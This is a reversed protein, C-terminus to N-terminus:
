GQHAIALMVGPGEFFQVGCEAPAALRGIERRYEAGGLLEGGVAEDPFNRKFIPAGAELQDPRMVIMEVARAAVFQHWDRAEDLALTEGREFPRGAGRDEVVM